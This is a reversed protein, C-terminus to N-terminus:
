DVAMAALSQNIAYISSAQTQGGYLCLRGGSSYLCGVTSAAISGLCQELPQSCWREGESAARSLTVAGERPPGCRTVPQCLPIWARLGPGLSGDGSGSEEVPGASCGPKEETWHAGEEGERPPQGWLM